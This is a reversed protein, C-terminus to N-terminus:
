VATKNESCSFFTVASGPNPTPLPLRMANQPHDYAMFTPFRLSMIHSKNCGRRWIFPDSSNVLVAAPLSKAGSTMPTVKETVECSAWRCIETQQQKSVVVVVCHKISHLM